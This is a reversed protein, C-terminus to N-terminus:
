RRRGSGSRREARRRQGRKGSELHNGLNHSGRRGGGAAAAQANALDGLARDLAVQYDRPDLEVLVTGAKVLDNNEVNVGIAHGTIRASITYIDGDIQADDTTERVAFYRWAVLGGVLLLPLLGLLFRRTRPNALGARRSDVEPASEESGRKPEGVSRPPEQVEVDGKLPM